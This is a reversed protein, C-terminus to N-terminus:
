RRGTNRRSPSEGVIDRVPLDDISGTKFRITYPCNEIRDGFASRARESLRVTYSTRDNFGVDFRARYGFATKEPFLIPESEPKPSIRLAGELTAPDMEVNFDITLTFRPSWLVDQEGNEPFSGIVRPGATTFTFEYPEELTNGRHDVAGPLVQVTYKTKFRVPPPEDRLLEVHLTDVDSLPSESGFFLRHRADPLIRFASKVTRGVMPRDFQITIPTVQGMVVGTEGRSPRTRIVRVFDQDRHLTFPPLLVTQGPLIAVGDFIAPQYGQRAARLTYSGPPVGLVQFAGDMGSMATAPTGELGILVGGHDTEGELLATGRLAGANAQAADPDVRLFLVLPQDARGGRVQIGIVSESLYGDKTAEIRYVGDPVNQFIYRGSRSTYSERPTVEEDAAVLLVAVGGRNPSGELEVYGEISVDPEGPRQSRVLRVPPLVTAHGSRIVASLTLPEYGDHSFNFERTGAPIGSFVYYGTASSETARYPRTLEVLTGTWAVTNELSVAGSVRTGPAGSGEASDRALHIEGVDVEGRPELMIRVENSSEYGAREARLIYAGPLVNEFAFLGESGTAHFHPSDVLYVSVGTSDPTDDLVVHGAIRGSLLSAEVALTFPELHLIQGTEVRFGEVRHPEYGPHEAVLEYTAPTIEGFTFTGNRDTRASWTTGPLYILTGEHDEADQLRAQGTLATRSPSSLEGPRPGCAAIMVAVCVIAALRPPPVALKLSAPRMVRNLTVEM